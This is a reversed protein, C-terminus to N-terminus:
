GSCVQFRTSEDSAQSVKLSTTLFHFARERHRHSACLFHGATSALRVPQNSARSLLTERRGIHGPLQLNPAVAATTTSPRVAAAMWAHRAALHAGGNTRADGRPLPSTWWEDAREISQIARACVAPRAADSGCISEGTERSV